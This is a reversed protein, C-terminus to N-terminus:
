LSAMAILNNCAIFIALNEIQIPFLAMGIGFAKAPTMSSVSERWRSLQGDPDPANFLKRLGLVVLLAGDTASIVRDVM